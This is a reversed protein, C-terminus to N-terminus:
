EGEAEELMDEVIELVEKLSQMEANPMLARDGNGDLLLRHVDSDLTEIKGYIREFVELTVSSKRWQRIHGKTLAM